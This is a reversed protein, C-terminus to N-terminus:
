QSALTPKIIVRVLSTSAVMRGGIRRFYDFALDAQGSAKTKVSVNMLSQKQFFMSKKEPAMLWGILDVSVLNLGKSKEKNLRWKYGAQPNGPLKIFVLEGVRAESTQMIKLEKAALATGPGSVLLLMTAIVLLRRMENMGLSGILVITYISFTLPRYLRANRVFVALLM